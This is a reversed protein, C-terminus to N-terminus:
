NSKRIRRHKERWEKRNGYPYFPDDDSRILEYGLLLGQGPHVGHQEIVVNDFYTKLESIKVKRGLKTALKTIQEKSTLREKM